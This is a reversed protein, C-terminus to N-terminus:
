TQVINRPLQSRFFTFNFPPNVEDSLYQVDRGEPIDYFSYIELFAINTLVAAAAIHFLM